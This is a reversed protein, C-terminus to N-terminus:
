FGLLREVLCSGVLLAVDLLLHIRLPGLIVGLLLAVLFCLFLGVFFLLNGFLFFLHLLLLTRKFCSLFASDFLAIQLHLLAIHLLAVVLLMTHLGLVHCRLFLSVVFFVVHLLLGQLHLLLLDFYLLLLCSLNLSCISLSSALSM